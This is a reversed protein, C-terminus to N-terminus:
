PGLNWPRWAKDDEKDPRPVLARGAAHHHHGLSYRLAELKSQSLPQGYVVEHNGDKIKWHLPGKTMEM